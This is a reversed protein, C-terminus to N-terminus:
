CAGETRGRQRSNWMVIIYRMTEKVIEDIGVHYGKIIKYEDMGYNLYRGAGKLRVREEGYFTYGFLVHM